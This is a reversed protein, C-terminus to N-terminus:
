DATKTDVFTLKVTTGLGVRTGAPISQDMVTVTSSIQDNGAVLIYLGAKGATDSAQQRNMGSFDPVEAM